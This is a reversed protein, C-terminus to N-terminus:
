QKLIANYLLLYKGVAIKWTFNNQVYSKLNEGMKRLKVDDGLIDLLGKQISDVSASVILGGDVFGIDNFGCQDTLLVPTGSIGAELVVISMAEQRSPIVLLKAARYSGIKEDSGLYGVFHVRRELSFQLVMNKLETLMGGDPGAFVLHYGPLKDKVNSFAKMLLDPGKILNLRGMFLIFPSDGLHYRNRFDNESSQSFDDVNVGNPILTVKGADIGYEKFHELENTAIAIHGNANKIIERGIMFNYFNKLVKSRGYVPLAGAPCVVYPKNLQRATKYALANIFTWHGMLHVIDAEAMLNKITRRSFKPFYFRKCLCPLAVVEMNETNKKYKEMLGINTTLIVTKIGIRAMERSLQLTREATGGGTVPDLSMNVNLVKM